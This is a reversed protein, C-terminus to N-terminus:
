SYILMIILLYRSVAGKVMLKIVGNPMRVVVSMRKRDSTFELVNLVEIKVEQGNQNPPLPNPLSGPNTIPSVVEVTIHKPTRTTFVYGLARAGMM